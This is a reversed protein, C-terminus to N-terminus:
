LMEITAAERRRARGVAPHRQQSNQPQQGEEHRCRCDRDTRHVRRALGILDARDERRQAEIVLDLVAARERDLRLGLVLKWSTAISPVATSRCM